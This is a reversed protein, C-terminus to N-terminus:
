TFLLLKRAGFNFLVILVGAVMKAALYNLGAQEVLLGIALANLGLAAAGVLAFLAFEHRWDPLRRFDFVWRISFLYHCLIGLLYALSAALLYHVGAYEVLLYLALTDIGFALAGVAAYRVFQALVRSPPRAVPM